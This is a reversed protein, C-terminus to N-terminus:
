KNNLSGFGHSHGEGDQDGDLHAVGEVGKGFVLRQQDHLGPDVGEQESGHSEGEAEVEENEGNINQSYTKCIKM